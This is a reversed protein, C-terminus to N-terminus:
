GGNKDKQDAKEEAKGELKGEAKGAAKTVELLEGMRGNIEKKL